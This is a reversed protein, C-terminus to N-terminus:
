RYAGGVYNGIDTTSDGKTSLKQAPHHFPGSKPPPANSSPSSIPCESLIRHWPWVYFDLVHAQTICSSHGIKVPTSKGGYVLGFEVSNHVELQLKGASLTLSFAKRSMGRAAGDKCVVTDCSKASSGYSHSVGTTHAHVFDEESSGKSRFLVTFHTFGAKNLFYLKQLQEQSEEQACAVQTDELSSESDEQQQTPPPDGEESAMVCTHTSFRSISIEASEQGFEELWLSLYGLPPSAPVSVLFIRTQHPRDRSIVVM